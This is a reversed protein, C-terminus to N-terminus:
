RILTKTTGQVIEPMDDEIDEEEETVEEGMESVDNCGDETVDGTISGTVPVLSDRDHETDSVDNEEVREAAVSM